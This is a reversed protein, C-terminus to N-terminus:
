VLKAKEIDQPNNAIKPSGLQKRAEDETLGFRDAVLAVAANLEYVGSAVAKAIEIMGTLGGVTDRLKSNLDTENTESSLISEKPSNIKIIEKAYKAMIVKKDALSKDFFSRDEEIARRVFQIINCSIIYDQQTIGDNSLMTFKEDNSLSPLPDIELVAQLEYSVEPDTNFKKKAYEVELARIIIPNANATKLAALEQMVMTSSLLDYKEPVAIKPLLLLREKQSPIIVSYRYDVIIKYIRDMSSVIDEAVANVFNNLEDRDVEKAVGSQSLPTEALFEMNISALAEYIHNRVREDQIRVIEVQKQIYGAPPTPITSQEGPKPPTVVINKYPSTNVWGGECRPNQCKDQTGKAKGTGNCDPCETSLYVWKESHIHQVVEAQLDSYERAAEDLSPVMSSIRSEYVPANGLYKLFIGGVRFSPLYGLGHQYRYDEVVDGKTNSQKYRIVEETNIAYYVKGNTYRRVGQESGYECTEDSLLFCFDDPRYELVSDAHFIRAYPKVYEAESVPTSIPCVAVVANADVLYTKLLESFVWNTVSAYFPYKQECYAELTEENAVRAPTSNNDYAVNWDSSRRIKSLSTIVKGIPNKTKPVYIKNRYEKIEKSESPRREEILAKPTEGNAHTRLKDYLQKTLAYGEHRKAKFIYEKILDTTIETKM